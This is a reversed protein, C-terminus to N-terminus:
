LALDAQGIPAAPDQPDLELAHKYRDGAADLRGAVRADDGYLTWALAVARPDAKDIDKRALLAALQQDRVEFGQATAAAAQGVQAGIHDHDKALVADFDVRAGDRDGLALKAQARGYLAPVDRA